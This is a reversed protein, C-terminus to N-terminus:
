TGPAMEDVLLGRKPSIQFQTTLPNQAPSEQFAAHGLTRTVPHSHNGPSLWFGRKRRSRRWSAAWGAQLHQPWESSLGGRGRPRGERTCIRCDTQAAAGLGWGGPATGEEKTVLVAERGKADSSREDAKQPHPPTTSHATGHSGAPATGTPWPCSGSPWGAVRSPERTKSPAGHQSCPHSERGVVQHTRAHALVHTCVGCGAGRCTQTFGPPPPPAPNRNGTVEWPQRCMEPHEPKRVGPLKAARCARFSRRQSRRRALTVM